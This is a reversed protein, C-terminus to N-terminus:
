KNYTFSEYKTPFDTCIGGAQSIDWDPFREPMVAIQSQNVILKGPYTWIWNKTTLTCEDTDHFFTNVNLETLRVFAEINKSHLWLNDHGFFGRHIEYQPGFFGRHIEYQPGDHGLFWKNNEFWVDVEVDFGASLASKIYDPHNEKEPLPGELNGRHSIINM